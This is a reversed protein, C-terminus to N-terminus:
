FPDEESNNPKRDQVREYDPDAKIDQGDAPPLIAGISTGTTGDNKQFEEINVQAQAGILKEANFEAKEDATLDAGRWTKLDKRLAGKENLTATYKRSIVIPKGDSKNQDLSFTLRLQRKEGYNTQQLGLDTVDVCVAGHIGASPNEWGSSSEDKLIMTKRAKPKNPKNPKNPKETKSIPWRRWGFNM